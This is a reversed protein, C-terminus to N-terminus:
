PLPLAEAVASELEPRALEDAQASFGEYTLLVLLALTMTGLIRLACAQWLMAWPPESPIRGHGLVRDTFGFPAEDPLPLGRTRALAAAQKWRREFENM